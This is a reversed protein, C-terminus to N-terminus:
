DVKWESLPVVIGNDAKLASEATGREAAKSEASGEFLLKGLEDKLKERDALLKSLYGAPLKEISSDKPAAVTWKKDGGSDIERL